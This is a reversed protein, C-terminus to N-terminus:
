AMHRNFVPLFDIEILRRCEIPIQKYAVQLFQLCSSCYLHGCIRIESTSALLFRHMHLRTVHHKHLSNQYKAITPHSIHKINLHKYIGIAIVAQNAYYTSIAYFASTRWLHYYFAILSNELWHVYLM